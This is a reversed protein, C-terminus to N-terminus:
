DGTYNTGGAGRRNNQEYYASEAAQPKAEGKLADLEWRLHKNERLSERYRLGLQTALVEIPLAEGTEGHVWGSGNCCDCPLEYFLPKVVARGRCTRCNDLIIMQAYFSPGHSKSM